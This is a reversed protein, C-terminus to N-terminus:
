RGPTVTVGVCQKDKWEGGAKLCIEWSDKETKPEDSCATLLVISCALILKKIM